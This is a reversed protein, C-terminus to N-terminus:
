FDRRVLYFLVDRGQRSQCALTSQLSSVVAANQNCSKRHQQVMGVCRWQLRRDMPPRNRGDWSCSVNAVAKSIGISIGICSLRRFEFVARQFTGSIADRLRGQTWRLGLRKTAARAVVLV